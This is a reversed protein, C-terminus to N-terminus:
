TSRNKKRCHNCDIVRPRLRVAMAICPRVWASIFEHRKRDVVKNGVRVLLILRFVINCQDVAARVTLTLVTDAQLGEEAGSANM